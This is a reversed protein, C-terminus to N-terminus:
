INLQNLHPPKKWTHRHCLTVSEPVVFLHLHRIKKLLHLPFHLLLLHCSVPVTAFLFSLAPKLEERELGGGSGDEASSLCCVRWFGITLIIYFHIRRQFLRGNEETENAGTNWGDEYWQLETKGESSTFGLFCCVFFLFRWFYLPGSVLLSLILCCTLSLISCALAAVM